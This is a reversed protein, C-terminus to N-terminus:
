LYAALSVEEWEDVRWAANIMEAPRTTGFKAAIASYQDIIILPALWSTHLYSISAFALFASMKAASNIRRHRLQHVKM